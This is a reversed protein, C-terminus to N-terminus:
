RGPCGHETMCRTCPKMTIGEMGAATSITSSSAFKSTVHNTLVAFIKLEMEEEQARVRVEGAM